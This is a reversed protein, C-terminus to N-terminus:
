RDTASRNSVSSTRAGAWAEVLSRDAKVWIANAIWFRQYPAKAAELMAVVGAQSRSATGVLRDHVYGARAPSRGLAAAAALDARARLYVLVDGSTPSVASRAPVATATALGTVGLAVVLGAALLGPRRFGTSGRRRSM